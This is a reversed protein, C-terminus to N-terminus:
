ETEKERKQPVRIRVTTGVGKQSEVAIGYDVGYHLRIRAQVNFMGILSGLKVDQLRERLSALEKEDMGAGDDRVTFCIAETEPKGLIEVCGEQGTLRIGHYIANEIIPQLILKVVMCDLIEEDINWSFRILPYRVQMIEAYARAYQLEESVLISVEPKSIGYRFLNNMSKLMGCAQERGGDMVINSITEITNSLFHPNIQMQLAIIEAKKKENEMQVKRSNSLLLDDVLVDIRDAMENFSRSIEDIEDIFYSKLRIDPNGPEIRRMAEKVWRLPNLLVFALIWSFLLVAVVLVMLSVGHKRLIFSQYDLFGQKEMRAYINWRTGKVPASLIVDDGEPYEAEDQPEAMFFQARGASLGYLQNLIKDADLSVRVHALIDAYRKNRIYSTYTLRMRGLADEGYEWVSERQYKQTDMQKEAIMNNSYILGGDPLYVDLTADYLGYFINDRIVQDLEKEPNEKEARRFLEIVKSDYVIRSVVEEKKQLEWAISAAANEAMAQYSNITQREVVRGIGTNFLLCFLGTPVLVSVALFLCVKDRLSFLDQMPIRPEGEKKVAGRADVTGATRRGQYQKILLILRQFSKALKGTLLGSLLAALLITIIFTLLGYLIIVLLEKRYEQKSQAQVMYWENSSIDTRVLEGGEQIEPVEGYLLTGEATYIAIDTQGALLTDLFTDEMVLYIEIERNEKMRFSYAPVCSLKLDSEKLSSKYNKGPCSFTIEEGCARDRELHFPTATGQQMSYTRGPAAIVIGRLIRSGSLAMQMVSQIQEFADARQSMLYKEDRCIGIYEALRDSQQLYACILYIDRMGEDIKEALTNRNVQETTFMVERVDSVVDRYLTIELWTSIVIQLFIVTLCLCQRFTLKWKKM